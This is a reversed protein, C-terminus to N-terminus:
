PQGNRIFVGEFSDADDCTYGPLSQIPGVVSSIAGKLLDAVKQYDDADSM